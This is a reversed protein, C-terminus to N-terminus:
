WPEERIAQSASARAWRDERTDLEKTSLKAEDDLYAALETQSAVVRLAATAQADTWQPAERLLLEKATM